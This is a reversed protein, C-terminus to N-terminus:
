RETQASCSSMVRLRQNLNLTQWSRDRVRDGVLSSPSRHGGRVVVEGDDLDDADAAAADVGDVPHDLLAELAHLEDGDVGVRLRQQHAVGVDLEVDAAVGGAAEAGAGVGLDAALGGLVGLVLDLLQQAAGVHHEDGGALAAAGAGAARGDDGGDGALEARQGDAHHGPRERELALAAAVLGLGADGDSRSLQSVRITM